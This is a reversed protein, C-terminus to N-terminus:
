PKVRKKELATIRKQFYVFLVVVIFILVVIVGVCILVIDRLSFGNDITSGDGNSSGGGNNGGNNGGNSSGDSDPFVDNYGSAINGSITGGLWNFTTGRENYVGGGWSTARNNCIEGGSMEFVGEGLNCVGGGYRATNGSIEGGSMVFSGGTYVGGCNGGAKNGSIKGGSMIFTGGNAVGGGAFPTNIANGSIEGSYLYLAGDSGRSQVHVGRGLFGNKHTVIVGDLRLIGGGGVLITNMHNVNEVAGILKYFGSSRNSTLAIDKNAPIILTALQYNYTYDPEEYRTLTIDNDLAIISSKGNPVNNNADKLETENKVYVANELSAGSSCIMMFVCVFLSSVLVVVLLSVMLLSRCSVGVGKNFSTM